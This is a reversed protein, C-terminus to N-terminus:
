ESRGRDGRREYDAIVGDASWVNDVNVLVATGAADGPNGDIQSYQAPAGGPYSYLNVTGGGQLVVQGSIAMYSPQGSPNNPDDFNIAGTNTLTGTVLVNATVLNVAVGNLFSVNDFVTPGNGGSGNVWVGTGASGDSTVTVRHLTADPTGGFYGFQLDGGNVLSVCADQVTAESDFFV